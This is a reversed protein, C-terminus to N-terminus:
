HVAINALFDKPSDIWGKSLYYVGKQREHKQGSKSLLIAICDEMEPIILDATTARLGIVANGCSGYGLLIEDAAHQNDIEEQLKVRLKKPDNHYESSICIIPYSIGLKSFLDNIENEFVECCILVRRM